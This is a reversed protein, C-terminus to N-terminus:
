EDDDEDAGKRQKIEYDNGLERKGAHFDEAALLYPAWKLYDARTRPDDYFLHFDGPTYASM